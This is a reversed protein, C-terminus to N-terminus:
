VAALHWLVPQISLLSYFDGSQTEWASYKCGGDVDESVNAWTNLKPIFRFM